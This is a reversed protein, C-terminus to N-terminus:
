FPMDDKVAQSITVNLSEVNDWASISLKNEQPIKSWDIKKDRGEGTTVKQIDGVTCLQGKYHPKGDDASMKNENKWLKGKLKTEYKLQKQM